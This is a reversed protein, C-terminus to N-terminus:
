DERWMVKAFAEFEAAESASLATIDNRERDSHPIDLDAFAANRFKRGAERLEKGLKWWARRDYGDEMARNTALLIRTLITLADNAATAAGKSAIMDIEIRLNTIELLKEFLTTPYDSASDLLDRIGAIDEAKPDPMAEAQDIAVNVTAITRLVSAGTTSILGDFDNLARAFRLYTARRDQRLAATRHSRDTLWAGVAVGTLGIIPALSVTLVQLWFPVQSSMDVDEDYSSRTWKADREPEM